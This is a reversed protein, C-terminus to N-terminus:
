RMLRSKLQRPNKVVRLTPKKPKGDRAAFGFEDPNPAPPLKGTGKVHDVFKRGKKVAALKTKARGVWYDGCFDTRRCESASGHARVGFGKPGKEIDITWGKYRM